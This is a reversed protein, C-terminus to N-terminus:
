SGWRYFPNLAGYNYSSDESLCSCRSFDRQLLRLLSVASSLKTPLGLLVKGFTMGGCLQGLLVKGLTM